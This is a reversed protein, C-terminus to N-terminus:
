DIKNMFEDSNIVFRKHTAMGIKGNSDFVDIKFHLVRGDIKILKSICRVTDKVKTPRIHKANIEIGVTDLNYKEQLDSISNLATNEMLAIMAPTAFVHLFGSGHEKATDELEVIKTNEFYLGEALEFKIEDNKKM